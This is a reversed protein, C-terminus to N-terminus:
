SIIVGNLSKYISKTIVKNFNKVAWLWTDYMFPKAPDGKTWAIYGGSATPKLTPNDDDVTTPYWWGKVGNENDGYVWGDAPATPNQGSGGSVGTGYEIFMVKPGGVSVLVGTKKKIIKIDKIETIGYKKINSELQKRILVTMEDIGKEVGENIAKKIATVVRSNLNTPIDIKVNYNPM